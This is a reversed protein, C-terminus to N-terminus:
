FDTRSYDVNKQPEFPKNNDNGNKTDKTTKIRIYAQLHRCYDNYDKHRGGNVTLQSHFDPLIALLRKKTIGTTSAIGAMMTEDKLLRDRLGIDSINSSVVDEVNVSDNVNVSVSDSVSVTGNTGNTGNQEMIPVTNESKRTYQNGRHRKGAESRKQRIEEWKEADRNMTIVLFKFAMAVEGEMPKVEKGMAHLYIADLLDGKDEQSLDAIAEYTDTYLIFSKKDM